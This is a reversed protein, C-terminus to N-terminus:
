IAKNKNKDEKNGLELFEQMNNNLWKTVITHIDDRYVDTLLELQMLDKTSYLYLLILQKNVTGKVHENLYEIQEDTLSRMIGNVTIRFDLSRATRNNYIKYDDSSVNNDIRLKNALSGERALFYPSVIAMMDNMNTTNLRYKKCIPQIASQHGTEFGIIESFYERFPSNLAGLLAEVNYDKYGDLSECYPVGIEEATKADFYKSIYVARFFRSKKDAYVGYFDLFDKFSVDKRFLYIDGLDSGDKANTRYNPLSGKIDLVILATLKKTAIYLKYPFAPDTEFKKYGEFQSFYNKVFEPYPMRVKKLLESPELGSREDCISLLIDRVEDQTFSHGKKDWEIIGFHLMFEHMPKKFLEIMWNTEGTSIYKKLSDYLEIQEKKTLVLIKYELEDIGLKKFKKNFIEEM